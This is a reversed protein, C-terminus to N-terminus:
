TKAKGVIGAIEMLDRVLYDSDKKEKKREPDFLITIMGAIKAPAIDKGYSNGIFVSDEPKFGEEKLIFKLNKVSPKSEDFQEASYLKEIYKDVELIKMCKLSVKRPSNSYVVLRNKKVVKLMEICNKHREILGVPDVSDLINFFEKRSFGLENMAYITAPKGQASMKKKAQSFKELASEKSIDFKKMVSKILARFRSEILKEEAEL